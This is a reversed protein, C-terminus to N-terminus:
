DAPLGAPGVGKISGTFAKAKNGYCRVGRNGLEWEIQSFAIAIWGIRYSLDGDNPVGAYAAVVPGCGDLRAKSLAAADTPYPTDPLDFVGAFEATHSRDCTIPTMRDVRNSSDVTVTFCGLGVPRDGSLGGKLSATRPVVEYDDLDKYEMLDCRYWRAGAQWHLAIPLVVFLDLRGARWDDGLYGKAEEACKEYATRRGKSGASPPSSADGDAGSFTGVYATEVTHKATCDVPEPWKTVSSPDDTTIDYCAAAAPTPIVADPMVKWNNTLSGDVGPPNGCAVLLGGVLVLAAATIGLRWRHV